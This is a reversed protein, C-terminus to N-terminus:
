MGPHGTCDVSDGRAVDGEAYDTAHAVLKGGFFSTCGLSRGTASTATLTWPASVAGVGCDTQLISIVPGTATVTRVEPEVGPRFASYSIEIPTTDDDSTVTFLVVLEAPDYACDGPVVPLTGPLAATPDPSPSPAPAPAESPTASATPGAGADTDPASCGALALAVAAAVIVILPRPPTM